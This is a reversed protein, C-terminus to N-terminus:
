PADLGVVGRDDEEFVADAVVGAELEVHEFPLGSRAVDVHM